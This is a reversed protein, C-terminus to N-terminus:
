SMSLIMADNGSFGPGAYSGITGYILGVHTINDITDKTLGFDRLKTASTANGKFTTARITGSSPQCSLTQATYVGDTM